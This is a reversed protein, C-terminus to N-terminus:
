RRRFMRARDAPLHLPARDLSIAQFRAACPSSDTPEVAAYGLPELCRNAFGGYKTPEFGVAAELERPFDQREESIRLTARYSAEERFGRRCAALSRTGDCSPAISAAPRPRITGRPFILYTRHGCFESELVHTADGPKGWHGLKRYAAVDNRSVLFM